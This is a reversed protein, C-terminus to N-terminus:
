KNSKMALQVEKVFEIRNRVSLKKYISTVHKKLTNPSICLLECVEEKDVDDIILAGIEAERDTLTYKERFLLYLQRSVSSKTFNTILHDYLRYGLHPGILELNFCEDQSFDGQEETRFLGILGVFTGNHVIRLTVQYRTGLRGHIRQYFDSNSTMESLIFASDNYVKGSPTDYIWRTHDYDQYENLYLNIEDNTIGM